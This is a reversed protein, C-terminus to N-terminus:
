WGSFGQSFGRSNKERYVSELKDESLGDSLFAGNMIITPTQAIGLAKGAEIDKRIHDRPVADRICQAFSDTDPVGGQKALATWDLTAFEKQHQFLLSQYPERVGQLEACNAAVSAAYAYRHVQQLPMDYRYIAVDNPHQAAFKALIPDATGCFPCQYDSFEVIKFSAVPKGLVPARGTMLQQWNAIVRVSAKVAARNRMLDRGKSTALALVWLALFATIVGNTLNRNMQTV